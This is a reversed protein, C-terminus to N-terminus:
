QLDSQFYEFFCSLFSFIMKHIKTESQNISKFFFASQTKALHVLASILHVIEKLQISM